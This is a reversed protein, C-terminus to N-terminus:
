SAGGTGCAPVAVVGDDERVLIARHRAATLGAAIAVAIEAPTKGGIPLGVPGHLKAIAQVSLGLTALRARRKANNAASGLAGVYFAESELAEMLAMDDLNPDHTLAVVASRADGTLAKVADDPMRTDLTTGPVQWQRAYDERPDCVIVDYDLQLAMMATFRSLHGAGIVLL